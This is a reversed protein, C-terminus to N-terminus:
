MNGNDGPILRPCFLRAGFELRAVSGPIRNNQFGPGPRFRNHLSSIDRILADRMRLSHLGIVVTSVTLMLAYHVCERM